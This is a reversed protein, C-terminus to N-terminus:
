MWIGICGKQVLIQEAIDVQTGIADISVVAEEIDLKELIRPIAKIENDKDTLPEQAVLLHNESVFANM